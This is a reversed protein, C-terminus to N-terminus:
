DGVKMPLIDGFRPDLRLRLAEFRARRRVGAALDRAVISSDPESVRALEDVASLLEAIGAAQLGESRM